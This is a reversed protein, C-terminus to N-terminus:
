RRHSQQHGDSQVSDQCAKMLNARARPPPLLLPTTSNRGNEVGVSFNISFVARKCPARYFSFQNPVLESPDEAFEERQRVPLVGGLSEVRVEGWQGCASGQDVKHNVPVVYIGYFCLIRTTSLFMILITCIFSPQTSYPLKPEQRKPSIKPIWQINTSM